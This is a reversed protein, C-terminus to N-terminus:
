MLYDVARPRLGTNDLYAFTDRQRLEQDLEELPAIYAGAPLIIERGSECTVVNNLSGLYSNGCWVAKGNRRVYMVHNPVTLCYVKGAYPVLLPRYGGSCRPETEKVKVGVRYEIERTVGSGNDRGRRDTQGVDGAYGIKLLLEQFDDALRRSSTYYTRKVGTEGGSVSGDGTMLADYLITLQRRSLSKAYEPLHKDAAKGFPRLERYLAVSKCQWGKKTPTFRFPLRSLLKGIKAHEPTGYTQSIGVIHQRQRGTRRTSAACTAAPAYNCLTTHGESLFYGLFELWDDMPVARDGCEHFAVEEGDWNASKKLAVHRPMRDATTMDWDGRKNGALTRQFYMNHNPTVRLDIDRGSFQYLEGVFDYEHLADPSQYELTQTDRNLTAIEDALTVDKFLKWGQRTLVETEPDYCGWSNHYVVARKGGKVVVRGRLRQAHPWDNGSKYCWGGPSRRMPRSISGCVNVPRRDGLVTWLGDLTTIQTADKFPMTKAIPELADPVGRRGWDRCRAVNYGDSLDVGAEAYNRYFLIGGRETLWKAAWAGVSGDGRIRGQGIEVRSGGYIPELAVREKPIEMDKFVCQISLEDECAGAGAASVCSGVSSQDIDPRIQGVAQKEYDWFVIDDEVAAQTGAIAAEFDRRYDEFVPYKLTALVADVAADDRYWGCFINPYM